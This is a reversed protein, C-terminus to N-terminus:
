MVPCLVLHCVEAYFEPRRKQIVLTLLRIGTILVRSESDPINKSCSAVCACACVCVRVRVRVLVRVHVAKM